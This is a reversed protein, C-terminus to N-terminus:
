KAFTKNYVLEKKECWILFNRKNYVWSAILAIHQFFLLKTEKKNGFYVGM